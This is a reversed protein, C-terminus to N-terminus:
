VSIILISIWVLRPQSPGQSLSRPPHSAPSPRDLPFPRFPLSHWPTSRGSWWCGHLSWCCGHVSWCCSHASWWCGHVSWCYCSFASWGFSASTTFDFDWRLPMVPDQSTALHCPCHHHLDPFRLNHFSPHKVLDCYSIVQNAVFATSLTFSDQCPALSSHSWRIEPALTLALEQDQHAAPVVCSISLQVYKKDSIM